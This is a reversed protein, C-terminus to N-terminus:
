PGTYAINFGSPTLASPTSVQVGNQVMIEDALAAV